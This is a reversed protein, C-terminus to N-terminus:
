SGYRETHNRPTDKAQPLKANQAEGLQTNAFPTHGACSIHFIQSFDALIHRIKPRIPQIKAGRGTGYRETHNRPTKQTRYNRM